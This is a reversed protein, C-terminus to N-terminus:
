EGLGLSTTAMQRFCFIWFEVFLLCPLGLLHPLIGSQYGGLEKMIEVQFYIFLTFFKGKYRDAVIQLICPCAKQKKLLSENTDLDLFRLSPSLM